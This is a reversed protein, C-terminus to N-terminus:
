NSIDYRGALWFSEIHACLEPNYTDVEVAQVFGREVIQGTEQFPLRIGLKRINATILTM